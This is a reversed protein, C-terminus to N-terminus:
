VKVGAATTIGGAKKRAGTVNGHIQDTGSTVAQKTPLPKNEKDNDADGNAQPKGHGQPKAKEQSESPKEGEEPPPPQQQGQGGGRAGGEGNLAPLSDKLGTQETLGEAMPKHVGPVEEKNFWKVIYYTGIGWLWVFSAATTTFFLVPLLVILATGAAFAIFLVAGVVGVLLGAVLAFVAVSLTMVFFLGLPIGSLALNALLFSALQPKETAFKILKNKLSERREPPFYRDLLSSSTSALSSLGGQVASPIASVGGLPTAATLGNTAAGAQAAM